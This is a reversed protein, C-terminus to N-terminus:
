CLSSNHMGCCKLGNIRSHAPRSPATIAAQHTSLMPAACSCACMNRCVLLAPMQPLWACAIQLAICNNAAAALRAQSFAETLMPKVLRRSAHVVSGAHRPLARRVKELLSGPRWGGVLVNWCYVDDGQSDAFVDGQKSCFLELLEQLCAPCNLRTAATTKWRVAVLSCPWVGSCTRLHEQM